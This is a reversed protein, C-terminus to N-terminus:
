HKLGEEIKALLTETAKVDEEDKKGLSIAKEAFEKAIELQGDKFLVAAYTDVTAYNYAAESAKKMWETAKHILAKDDEKEYIDWCFGNIMNACKEIGVMDIYLDLKQAFSDWEKMTKALMVDYYAITKARDEEPFYKKVLEVGEKFKSRDKDHIAARFKDNAISSIKQTVEEDGYKKICEDKVKFFAEVHKGKRVFRQFISWSVENLLDPNEDLYKNLEEEKPWVRKSESGDKNPTKNTFSNVYFAPFDLKDSLKAIAPGTTIEKSEKGFAIFDAPPMYGGGKSVLSGDSKFVLGAPYGSIRYKLGVDFGEREMDLKISVYNENFYKGVEADPFTKKDLVKCWYCWETYCDVFLMKNEKTAKAVAEEISGEFFEIQANSAILIIALITTSLVKKIIM